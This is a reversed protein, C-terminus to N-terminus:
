KETDSEHECKAQGCGCVSLCIRRLVASIATIGRSAGLPGAFLVNSCWSLPCLENLSLDLLKLPGVSLGPDHRNHSQISMGFCGRLEIRRGPRIGIPLQDLSVAFM